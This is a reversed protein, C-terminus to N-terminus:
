GARFDRLIVGERGSVDLALLHSSSVTAFLWAEKGEDGCQAAALERARKATDARIVFGAVEDHGYAVKAEPRKILFLKM